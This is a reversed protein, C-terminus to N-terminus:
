EADASEDIEATSKHKLSGLAGSLLPALILGVIGLLSFGVYLSVLTLVPHLDLSKGVIKPESFQRVVTNVLFLVLLGIGRGPNGLMFAFISWPVLITGVGIVPLIDLLSVLLAILPAHDIRLILFGSLMVTFTILLIILYSRIYKGCISFADKRFGSLRLAVRAPLIRKVASNIRELDLSFYVLSIVTVLTYFLASPILSVWSTVSEGLKALIGSIMSSIAESIREGLGEPIVDGIFPLSPSSLRELFAFIPSSEDIGSLFRWLAASIQWIILALGGFAVLTVLISIVVRLIPEPIHTKRSLKQAPGRVAFAVTWAIIFPSFVPFLERVFFTLLIWGAVAGVLILVITQIKERNM